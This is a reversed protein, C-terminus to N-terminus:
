AVHHVGLNASGCKPSAEHGLLYSWAPTAYLTHVERLILAHVVRIQTSMASAASM